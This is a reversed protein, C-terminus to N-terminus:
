IALRGTLYFFLLIAGAVLFVVTGFSHRSGSRGRSRGNLSRRRWM